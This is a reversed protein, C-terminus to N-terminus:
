IIIATHSGTVATTVATITATKTSGVYDTIDTVQKDLTGANFVLVRGNYFDDVSSAAAGDVNVLVATTTTGGSFTVDDAIRETPLVAAIGDVVTDVTAVNTTLTTLAAQAAPFTGGSLGTTDYQLELNDAATADSSIQITDVQLYDTTAAAYLSDYVNASVVMFENRVPRCLSTDAIGVVLMGETDLQAATITLNYFGDMSAIAAFTNASIDTVAAGDHKIIEAVDATSVDLTTEVTFGDTADVVPGIVVKVETDAKLILM